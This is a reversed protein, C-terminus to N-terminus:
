DDHPEELSFRGIKGNRFEELLMSEAREYDFEGGRIIMGRSSCIDELIEVNTEKLSSLRYREMLLGPHDKKLLDIIYLALDDEPLIQENISGLLAINIGTQRNTIKPWLLGPSDMLELYDGIRIWRLDRTVGPRNAVTVKKSGYLTNIVASKGVNPIGCVLARVTYSMGRSLYRERIGEAVKSICDMLKKRDPQKASYSVATIGKNKFYEIFRATVAPDAMDAKNLVMILKKGQFMPSFDPNVSSLPARADIVELVIDIMKLHKSLDRKAKTMHGPYWNINM